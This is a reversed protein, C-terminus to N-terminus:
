ALGASQRLRDLARVQGLSDEWTLTPSQRNGLHEAVEMAERAFPGLGDGARYIEPEQGTVLLRVEAGDKPPHWPAPIEITGKEGRIIAVNPESMRIACKFTAKVGDPFEMSGSTIDDVGTKPNVQSTGTLKVPEAGAIMRSFSVCYCGIDLLAGGGTERIQRINDVREGMDFCFSSHITRIPGICEEAVLAKVLGWIPHLRYMFGEMYFVGAREVAKIVALNEAEDMTGPKECLIHKGARAAKISWESHLHNPIAIYIANVDPDSLLEEYSGYAGAIGMESAFRKAKELDRSAVAVVAIGWERADLAFKRAIGGCAMIGWKLPSGPTKWEQM